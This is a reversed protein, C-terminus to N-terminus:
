YSDAYKRQTRGIWSHHFKEALPQLLLKPLQFDKLGEPLEIVLEIQLDSRMEMIEIYHKLIVCENQLASMENIRLYNRLLIMLSDIKKSHLKDEYLVLSCKISNLTNLLFHPRIQSSLSQLEIVRKEEQEHEINKILQNIQDLMQNLTKGLDAIEDSGSQPFRVLRNGEGFQLAVGRLKQIPKHLRKAIFFSLVLFILIFLGILLISTYFISSLEGTITEYPTEYVLTWNAKPINVKNKLNNESNSANTNGAIQNGSPDL